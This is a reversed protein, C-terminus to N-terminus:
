YSNSILKGDYNQDGMDCSKFNKVESNYYSADAETTFSSDLQWSLDGNLSLDNNRVKYPTNESQVNDTFYKQNTERFHKKGYSWSSNISAVVNKYDSNLSLHPEEKFAKERYLENSIEGGYYNKKNETIFNLIAYDGEASYKAGPNKIIEIYKISSASYSKLFSPLQASSLIKPKGNFMIKIGDKNIIKINDDSVLIEPVSRLLDFINAKGNKLLKVDIIDKNPKHIIMKRLKVVSIEQINITTDMEQSFVSNCNIFSLLIFILTIKM